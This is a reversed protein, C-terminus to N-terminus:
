RRAAAHRASGRRDAHVDPDSLALFRAFGARAPVRRRQLSGRAPQVDGEAQAGSRPCDGADIRPRHYRPQRRQGGGARGRALRARRSRGAARAPPRHSRGARARRGLRGDAAGASAATAIFTKTAAVSLERGACIPLVVDCTEALPSDTSTSSAVTIAGADKASKTFAILDDSRGSQSIALVLQDKLHMSQGYISAISPAAPSVPIGVYREILHKAFAAAHASSGRACTVVVQPPRAKLRRVLEALPQALAQEQRIIALPAERLEQAMQAKVNAM